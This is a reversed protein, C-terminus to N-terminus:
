LVQESHDQETKQDIWQNASAAGEDQFIQIWESAFITTLLTLEIRWYCNTGRDTLIQLLASWVGSNLGNKSNM